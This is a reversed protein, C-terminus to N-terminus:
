RPYVCRFGVWPLRDDPLRFRRLTTTRRDIPDGDHGGRVVRWPSRSSGQWADLVYLGAETREYEPVDEAVADLSADADGGDLGADRIRPLALYFDGGDLVWEAVGGALNHLGEPTIDRPTAGDPASDGWVYLRHDPLLGAAAREWEVESPLRGNRWACYATADRWSVCRAPERSTRNLPCAPEACRHESVCHLYSRASVERRDIAFAHVRVAHPPREEFRGEGRDLGLGALGEALCQAGRPVVECGADLTPVASADPASELDPEETIPAPDPPRPTARNAACAVLAMAVLSLARASM